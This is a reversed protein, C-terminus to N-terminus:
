YKVGDIQNFLKIFHDVEYIAYAEFGSTWLIGINDVYSRSLQRHDEKDIVSTTVVYVTEGTYPTISGAINKEISLFVTRGSLMKLRVFGDQTIQGYSKIIDKSAFTFTFRIRYSGDSEILQSQITLYDKNKYYNRLHDPTYSTLNKHPGLLYQKNTQPDVEKIFTPNSAYKITYGKTPPVDYSVTSSRKDTLFYSDYMEYFSSLSKADNIIINKLQLLDFSLNNYQTSIEKNPQKRIKLFANIEQLSVHRILRRYEQRFRDSNDIIPPLEATYDTNIDSIIQWTDDDYLVFYQGANTTLTDQGVILTSAYLLLFLITFPKTFM